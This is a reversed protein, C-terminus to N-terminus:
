LSIKKVDFGDFKRIYSFLARNGNERIDQLIEDVIKQQQSYDTNAREMLRRKIKETEQASLIPLM